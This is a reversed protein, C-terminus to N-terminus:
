SWQSHSINHIYINGSFNQRQAGLYKCLMDVNLDPIQTLTRNPQSYTKFM